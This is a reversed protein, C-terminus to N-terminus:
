LQVETGTIDNRIYTAVGRSARIADNRNEILKQYGKTNGYENDKFNIEQLTIINPDKEKIILQLEKYHTRFGNLNWQFINM